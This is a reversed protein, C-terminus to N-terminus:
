AVPEGSTSRHDLLAPIDAASHVVEAGPEQALEQTWPQRRLLSALLFLPRGQSVALRAQLRSGSREGAEVVLTARTVGSLVANRMPFTRRTPPADPWFQSVVAGTRAIERQLAANQPPYCHMLGNGIVAITRGGSSLAATHAATDIGAALGSAVVYGADVLQTASARADAVAQSTPLRSGVVAVSRADAPCLRGATFILPPRDRLARLNDPYEPDLITHLQMGHDLWGDIDRKAAALLREVDRNDNEDRFLSPQGLNVGWEEDLVATASGREGVIAAYTSWPRSGIRLLVILAATEATAPV